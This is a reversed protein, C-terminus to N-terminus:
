EVVRFGTLKSSTGINLSLTIDADSRIQIALIGELNTGLLTSLALTGSLSQPVQTLSPDSVFANLAEGHGDKRLLNRSM